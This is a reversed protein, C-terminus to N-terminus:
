WQVPNYPIGNSARPDVPGGGVAGGPGNWNLHNNYADLAQRCFKEDEKNRVKCRWASGILIVYPLVIAVVVAVAAVIFLFAGKPDILNIPDNAVYVYRNLTRFDTITGYASDQQTWRGLNPDYYRAGFKVLGTPDAMGAAFGVPQATGVTSSTVRGFEDYVYKDTLAQSM